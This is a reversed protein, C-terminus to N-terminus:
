DDEKENEKGEKNQQTEKKTIKHLLSSFITKKEQEGDKEVKTLNTVDFEKKEEETMENTIQREGGPVEKTM